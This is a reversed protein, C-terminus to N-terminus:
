NVPTIICLHGNRTCMRASGALYVLGRMVITLLVGDHPIHLVYM